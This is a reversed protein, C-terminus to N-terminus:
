PEIPGDSGGGGSLAYIGGAIGGAVGVGLLIQGTSFGESPAEAGEVEGTAACPPAAEIPVVAGPKVSVSCEPSYLIEGQGFEGAMVSDGVKAPVTGRM